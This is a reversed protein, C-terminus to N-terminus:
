GSHSFNRRHSPHRNSERVWWRRRVPWCGDTATSKKDTSSLANVAKSSKRCVKAFHGRKGCSNCTKQKAPCSSHGARHGLLGCCFCRDDKFDGSKKKHQASFNKRLVNVEKKVFPHSTTCSAEELKRAFELTRDLNLCEGRVKERVRQSSSGMSIRDRIFEDEMAAFNCTSALERLLSLYEDISQGPVQNCSQFKEREAVINTKGFQANLDQMMNEFKYATKVYDAEKNLTFFRRQGESGLANLLLAKKRADDVGSIGSMTLWTNFARKWRAWPTLPEGPNALFHPPEALTLYETM